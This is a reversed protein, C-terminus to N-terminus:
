LYPRPLLGRFLGDYVALHKTVSPLQITRSACTVDVLAPREVDM